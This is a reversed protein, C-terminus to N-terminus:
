LQLFNRSLKRRRTAATGILGVTILGLISTPEPVPTLLYARGGGNAVIQGNDNIDQADALTIGLTPDILSNLDVISTGDFVFARNANSTDTSLGVAVGKNNISRASSYFGGLTGLDRMQNNEYLFATSTTIGGNAVNYSSGVIQGLDNIKNGVSNLYGSLTGLDQPLNPVVPDFIFAHSASGVSFQGTVLGLNNISNGSTAGFGNCFFGPCIYANTRNPTGSTVSAKGTYTGSDNIGYGASYKPSGSPLPGGITPSGVLYTYSLGTAGQVTTEGIVQGGNNIDFGKSYQQTPSGLSGLSQLAGNSYLFALTTNYTYTSGDSYTVTVDTQFDGTVQASNNLAAATMTKSASGSSALLDTVTYVIEASVASASVGGLLMAGMLSLGIRSSSSFKFTM